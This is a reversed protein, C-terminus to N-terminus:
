IEQGYNQYLTWFDDSAAKGDISEMGKLAVSIKPASNSLMESVGNVWQNITSRACGMKTAIANQAVGYKRLVFALAYNAAYKRCDQNLGSPENEILTKYDSTTANM